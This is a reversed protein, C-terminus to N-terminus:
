ILVKKLAYKPNHSDPNYPNKLRIGELALLKEKLELGMSFGGLAGSGQIVRHCPIVIPLPNRGVAQGIARAGGHYGLGKAIDGYSRTHGYPIKSVEILVRETFSTLGTLDVPITFSIPEGRFYHHLQTAIERFDEPTEVADPYKKTLSSRIKEISDQSIDLVSLHDNKAFLLVTGLHYKILAYKMPFSESL